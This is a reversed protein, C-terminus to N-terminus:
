AASSRTRTTFWFEVIGISRRLSSAFSEILTCVSYLVFSLGELHRVACIRASLLWARGLKLWGCSWCWFLLPQSLLDELFYGETAMGFGILEIGYDDEWLRERVQHHAVKPTKVKRKAVPLLMDHKFKDTKNNDRWYM